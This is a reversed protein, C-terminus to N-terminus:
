KDFFTKYCKCTPWSSAMNAWSGELSCAREQEWKRQRPCNIHNQMTHWESIELRYTQHFFLFLVIPIQFNPSDDPAPKQKRTPKCDDLILWVERVERALSLTNRWLRSRKWMETSGMWKVCTEIKRSRSGNWSWPKLDKHELLNDDLLPTSSPGYSTEWFFYKKKSPQRM